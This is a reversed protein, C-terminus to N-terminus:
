VAVYALREGLGFYQAQRLSYSDRDIIEIERPGRPSEIHQQRFRLSTRSTDDAVVGYQRPDTASASWSLLLGTMGLVARAINLKNMQM